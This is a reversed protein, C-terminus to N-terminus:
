LVQSDHRGELASKIFLKFAWKGDQRQGCQWAAAVPKVSLIGSLRM